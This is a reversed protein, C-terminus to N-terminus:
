IQLLPVDLTTLYAYDYIVCHCNPNYDESYHHWTTKCTTVLMESSCVAQVTTTFSSPVTHSGKPWMIDYGSSWLGCLDQVGFKLVGEQKHM